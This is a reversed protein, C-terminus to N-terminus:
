REVRPWRALLLAVLTIAAAVTTRGHECPPAASIFYHGITPSIDCKDFVTDRTQDILPVIYTRQYEIPGEVPCRAHLETQIEHFCRM